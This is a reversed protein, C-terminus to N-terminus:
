CLSKLYSRTDPNFVNKYLDSEPLKRWDNGNYYEWIVEHIGVDYTCQGLFANQKMILKWDINQNNDSQIEIEKFRLNFSLTIDSGKQILVQDSGFYVEEYLGIKEGFPMYEHSKQEINAAVIFDPSISDIESSISLIDFIFENFINIDMCKLRIWIGNTNFLEMPSSKPQHKSKYLKLTNNSYKVQEFREFGNETSYEALFLQPNDFSYLMKQSYQGGKPPRFNITICGKDVLYAVHEHCIYLEHKQINQGNECFLKFDGFKNQTENQSFIHYIGDQKPLVQFSNKINSPVVRLSNLTEFTVTDDDNDALVKTGQMVDVAQVDNSVLGFSVYGIAPNAPLIDAGIYKFFEIMNKKTLQNYKILMNNHMEGFITAVATGADPNKVDFKWEPTYTTSLYKIKETIDEKNQRNIDPIKM